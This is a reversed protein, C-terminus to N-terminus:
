LIEGGINILENANKYKIYEIDGNPLKIMVKQNRTYKKNSKLPKDYRRSSDTILIGNLHDIEHQACICELLGTDSFYDNSDKWVGSKSTPSFEVVGLNDCEVTISKYRVTRVPKSVTKKLSLCQEIYVVNDNSTNIIKPNVLLLPEDVNILCVRANIGVQNASLGHGGHKDLEDKLIQEINDIDSQSLSSEPVVKRLKRKDQIIKM